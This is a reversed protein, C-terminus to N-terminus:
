VLKVIGLVELSSYEYPFRSKNAQRTTSLIINDPRSKLERQLVRSSAISLNLGCSFTRDSSSMRLSIPNGLSQFFILIADLSPRNILYDTVSIAYRQVNDCIRYYNLRKKFREITAKAASNSESAPDSPHKQQMKRAALSLISGFSESLFTNHM